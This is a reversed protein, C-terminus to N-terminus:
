KEEVEDKKREKKIVEPEAAAVAPTGEVAVAEEAKVEVKEEHPVQILVVVATPEGLLKVGAPPVVDAIKLSQHLHLASIDIKIADPIDAPLCEVEVERSMLEVFGGETKVGVAEGFLEIPIAVRVAKDMAIKILDAHLLEDTTSDVQVDKIMVDAEGGEFAVKFITNEGSESKLIRIIDKKDLILPAVVVGEGYLVAPVRGSKRIRRSANKGIEDRKESNIVLGM